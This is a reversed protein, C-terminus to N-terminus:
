DIIEIFRGFYCGLSQAADNGSPLMMGYLLDKVTLCDGCILEATTGGVFETTNPQLINVYIRDIDLKYKSVLDLVVTATMIKTLSAVQRQDNEQKAYMIQKTERNMIVWSKATIFPAPNDSNFFKTMIKIYEAYSSYTDPNFM